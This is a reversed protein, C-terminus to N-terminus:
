LIFICLVFVFCISHCHFCCIHPHPLLSTSFFIGEFHRFSFPRSLLPFLLTWFNIGKAFKKVCRSWIIVHKSDSKKKKFTLFLHRTHVITVMFADDGLVKWVKPIMPLLCGLVRGDSTDLNLQMQLVKAKALRVPTCLIQLSKICGWSFSWGLDGCLLSDCPCAWGPSPYCLVM